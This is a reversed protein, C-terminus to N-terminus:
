QLCYETFVVKAWLNNEETSRYSYHFIVQPERIGNEIAATNRARCILVFSDLHMICNEIYIRDLHFNILRYVDALFPRSQRVVDLVNSITPEIKIHLKLFLNRYVAYVCKQM